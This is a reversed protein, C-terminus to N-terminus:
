TNFLGEKHVAGRSAPIDEAAVNDGSCGSDGRSTSDRATSMTSLAREADGDSTEEMVDVEGLEVVADAEADGAM